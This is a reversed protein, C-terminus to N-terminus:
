QVAVTGAQLEAFPDHVKLYLKPPATKLASEMYGALNPFAFLIHSARYQEQNETKGTEENTVKETKSEDFRVIHYGFQTEVLTPYTAGKKLSLVADEFEKVMDGKAFWSLDGGNAASGDDSYQKALAAFDGGNKVQELVQQAEVRLTERKAPDESIKTALKSQLIFPRVVKKEYDALTWGYRKKLEENLENEDKFSKMMETKLNNVDEEEIKVDYQKAASEVLLNNVLRWLVQDTMQEETLDAGPARDATVGAALQSKDYERMVRIAKMDEAFDAYPIKKDAVKVAPLALVKSVAVTFGDTAAQGYARYVGLALVAVLAAVVVGIILFKRSRTRVPTPQANNVSPNTEEM